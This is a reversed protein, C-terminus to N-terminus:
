KKMIRDAPKAPMALKSGSEELMRQVTSIRSFKELEVTKQTHFIEVDALEKRNDELRTLTKEIKLSLWISAWFLFFTYIIHIFYRDAHLRLM